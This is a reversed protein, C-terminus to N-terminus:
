LIDSESPRVDRISNLLNTKVHIIGPFRM